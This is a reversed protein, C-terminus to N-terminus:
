RICKGSFVHEQAHMHPSIFDLVGGVGGVEGGNQCNLPPLHITETVGLNEPLVKSFISKSSPHSLGYRKRYHNDQTWHRECWHRSSDSFAFRLELEKPHMMGWVSGPWLVNEWSLTGNELSLLTQLNSLSDLVSKSCEPLLHVSGLGALSPAGLEAARLSNLGVAHQGLPLQVFLSGLLPYCIGLIGWHEGLGHLPYGKYQSDISFSCLTM